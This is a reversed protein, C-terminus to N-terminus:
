SFRSEGIKPAMNDNWINWDLKLVSDNKKSTKFTGLMRSADHVFKKISHEGILFYPILLPQQGFDRSITTSANGMLIYSSVSSSLKNAALDLLISIQDSELFGSYKTFADDLEEDFKRFEALLYETWSPRDEIFQNNIFRTGRVVPAKQHIDFNKLSEMFHTDFVSEIDNRGVEIGKDSCAKYMTMLIDLYKKIISSIQVLAIEQKNKQDNKEKRSIIQDFIFYTFGAGVIETSLNMLFNKTDVDPTIFYLWGVVALLIVIILLLVVYRM